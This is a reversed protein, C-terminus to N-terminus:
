FSPTNLHCSETCCTKLWLDTLSTKFVRLIWIVHNQVAPRWDSTLWLHKLSPTNLHCSETCCTKLWLDTLSTKFESYEFSMIRYLQDDILPGLPWLHHSHNLSRYRRRKCSLYAWVFLIFYTTLGFHMYICIIYFFLHIRKKHSRVQKLQSTSIM